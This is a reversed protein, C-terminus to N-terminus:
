QLMHAHMIRSFSLVLSAKFSPFSKSSYCKVSSCIAIRLLNFRGHYLIVGRVMVGPTRGNHQKIICMPLCLPGAYHRIDIHGDNDQLNFRSVDSFFVQHWDGEWARHEHVWQLHLRRHNATFPIRYLPVRARLGRHLLHRRIASIPM